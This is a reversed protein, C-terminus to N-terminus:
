KPSSNPNYPPLPDFSVPGTKNDKLLGLRRMAAKATKDTTEPCQLATTGTSECICWGRVTMNAVIGINDVMAAGAAMYAKENGSSHGRPQLRRNAVRNLAPKLGTVCGV